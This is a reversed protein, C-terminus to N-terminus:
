TSSKTREIYEFIHKVYQHYQDINRKTDNVVREPDLKEYVHVLANRLGVSPAISTALEYPLIGHEGLITFTGQYDESSQFKEQEIILTNIDVAADVILQVLREVAHMETKRALIEKTSPVLLPSLESLYKQIYSLKNQVVQTFNSVDM